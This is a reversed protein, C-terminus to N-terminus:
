ALEVDGRGKALDLGLNFGLNFGIGDQRADFAGAEFAFRLAKRRPLAINDVPIRDALEVIRRQDVADSLDGREIRRRFLRQEFRCRDLRTGLENDLEHLKEAAEVAVVPARRKLLRAADGAVGDAVRFKRGRSCDPFTAQNAARKTWSSA